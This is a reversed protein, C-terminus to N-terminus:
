IVLGGDVRFVQGTIYAAADSSLFLILDAVEDPKGFRRLPIMELMKEKVKEPLQETMRTVIYGPAVANVNVGFRAFEKACTKTLSILAGKSASYNAQGINGIQGIISAINVIKGSKRSFMARGVIKSCIFVGKLNVNLVDDWDKESMKLILGDRTIGANNVLVDIREWKEFAAALSKEVDQPVTIDLKSSIFNIGSAGLEKEFEADILVDWMALNAGQRGFKLALSKGIGGFAGTIVVVKDKSM